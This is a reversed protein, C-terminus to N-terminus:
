TQLTKMIPVKMLGHVIGRNHEMEKTGKLDM